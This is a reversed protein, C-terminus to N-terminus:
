CLRNIKERGRSLLTNGASEIKGEIAKGLGTGLLSTAGGLVASYAVDFIIFDSIGKNSHIQELANSTGSVAATLGAQALPGLGTAPELQRM